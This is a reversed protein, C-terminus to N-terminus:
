EALIPYGCKDAVASLTAAKDKARQLAQILNDVDIKDMAIHINTHSRAHHYSIKLMHALVFGVPEQTVDIDFVPRLDTLIRVGCFTNEHDTHVGRAKALM